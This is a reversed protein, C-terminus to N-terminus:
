VQIKELCEQPVRAWNWLVTDIVAIGEGTLSKADQAIELVGIENPQYGPWKALRRMWIDQTTPWITDLAAHHPESCKTLKPRYGTAM